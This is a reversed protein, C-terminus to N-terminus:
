EPADDDPAPQAKTLVVDQLVDGTLEVEIRATAYGGLRVKLTHTGDGRAVEGEYPTKGLRKGDLLVTANAPTSTIKLRVTASADPPADIAADIAADPLPADVVVIAPAADAPAPTDDGRLAFVVVTTVVITALGIVAALLRPDIRRRPAPPPKPPAMDPTSARGAPSPLQTLVPVGDTDIQSKLAPVPTTAKTHIDLAPATARTDVAPVELTTHTDDIQPRDPSTTARDDLPIELEIALADVTETAARLPRKPEPREPALSDPSTDAQASTWPDIASDEFLQRMVEVITTDGLVLGLHHGVAVLEARLAEASPHRADPDLQLARVIVRELEPPFDPRVTRPKIYSGAKVREITLRDSDDRFARRMTTLEYLIAGLAFIDSRADVTGHRRAQEPALYALQDKSYGLQTESARLGRASAGAFGLLQVAGDFGIVVNSLSVHGHVLGLPGGDTRRRTHAYHLGSAAAAVVTLAFDFPLLAGMLFTQQWVERASRGHVFDIVVYFRDADRGVDLIPTIHQHHLRGLNLTEEIFLGEAAGPLHEFTKIVVHRAFGGFGTSRALYLKGRDGEALTKVIEYRGIKM